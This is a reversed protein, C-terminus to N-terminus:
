FLTYNNNKESDESRKHDECDDRLLRADQVDHVVRGVVLQDAGLRQHLIRDHLDVGRGELLPVLRVEVALQHALALIHGRLSHHVVLLLAIAQLPLDGRQVLLLRQVRVQSLHSAAVDSLYEM